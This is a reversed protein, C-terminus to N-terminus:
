VHARGIEADSIEDSIEYEKNIYVVNAGEINATLWEKLLRLLYSKGVRRQGILFLMVDKDLLRVIHDIYHPRPILNMKM